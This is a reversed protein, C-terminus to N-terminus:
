NGTFYPSPGSLGEPPSFFLKWPKNPLYDFAGLYTLITQM